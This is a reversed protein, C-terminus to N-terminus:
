FGHPFVKIGIKKSPAPAFIFDSLVTVSRGGPSSSSVATTRPRQYRAYQYRTVVVNSHTSRVSMKKFDYFRLNNKSPRFKGLNLACTGFAHLSKLVKDHAGGLAGRKQGVAVRVEARVGRRVGLM